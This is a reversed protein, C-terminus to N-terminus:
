EEEAHLVCIQLLGDSKSSFVYSEDATAAYLSQLWVEQYKPHKEGEEFVINLIEALTSNPYLIRNAESLEEFDFEDLTPCIAPSKVLMWVRENPFPSICTFDENQGIMWGETEESGFVYEGETLCTTRVHERDSADLYGLEMARDLAKEISWPEFSSAGEWHQHNSIDPENWGKTWYGFEWVTMMPDFTFETNEM